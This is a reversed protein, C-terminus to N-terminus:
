RKNHQDEIMEPQEREAQGHDDKRHRDAKLTIIASMKLLCCKSDMVISLYKFTTVVIKNVYM